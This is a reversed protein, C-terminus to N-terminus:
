FYLSLFQHRCICHKLGVYEGTVTSRKSMCALHAYLEIKNDKIDGQKGTNRERTIESDEQNEGTIESDKQKERGVVVVIM